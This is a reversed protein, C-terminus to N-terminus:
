PAPTKPFELERLALTEMLSEESDFLSYANLNFQDLHRLVKIRETWPIKFKWVVDQKSDGLEFAAEHEAFSKPQDFNVCLTYTSQQLFHRRHTKVYPGMRRIQPSGSSTLKFRTPSESFVFLAM